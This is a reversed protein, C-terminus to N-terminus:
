ENKECTIKWNKWDYYPEIPTYPTPTYPTYPIFTTQENGVVFDMLFYYEDETLLSEAESSQRIRNLIEIAKRQNQTM